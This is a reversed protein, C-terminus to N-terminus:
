KSKKPLSDLFPKFDDESIFDAYDSMANDVEKGSMLENMGTEGLAKGVLGFAEDLNDAALPRVEAICDKTIIRTLLKAFGQNLEKTREAPVNSLDSIQPSNTMMAFLWRVTLLRDAGTTRLVVCQTLAAEQTSRESPQACWGAQSTLGALAGVAALAVKFRM